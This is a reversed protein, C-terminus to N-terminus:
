AAHDVGAGRHFMLSTHEIFASVLADDLEVGLVRKLLPQALFPFLALSVLSVMTLRPDLEARLKGNAQGRAVLERVVPAVGTSIRNAARKQLRGGEPLVHQLIMKPLWPNAAITGIYLSLVREFGAEGGRESLTGLENVIVGLAEDFATELLGAKSGFHYRIMAPNVGAADAIRKTSVEDYGYRAFLERAADILAQRSDVRQGSSPRGPKRNAQAQGIQM